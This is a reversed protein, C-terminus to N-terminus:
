MYAVRIIVQIIIWRSQHIIYTSLYLLLITECSQALQDAENTVYAILRGRANGNIKSIWHQQDLNFYLDISIYNLRNYIIGQCLWASARIFICRKWFEQQWRTASYHVAYRSYMSNGRIAEMTVCSCIFQESAQSSGSDIEWLILTM